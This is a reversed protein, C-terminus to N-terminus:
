DGILCGIKVGKLHPISTVTGFDNNSSKSISALSEIPIDLLKLISDEWQFTELNMLNTRSANSSDTIFSNKNTLMYTLWTDITGFCVNKLEM